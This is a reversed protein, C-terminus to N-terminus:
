EVRLVDLPPRRSARRAPVYCAAMAAVALVASVLALADLLSFTLTNVAIGLALTAVAACAFSPQKAFARLAFRIDALM